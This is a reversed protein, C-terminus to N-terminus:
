PTGSAALRAQVARLVRAAEASDPQIRLAAELQTAADALRGEQALVIGLNLRANASQPNLAAARELHEAALDFRGQRAYVAGLNAQGMAYDPAQQVAQEFYGAAEDLRGQRFAVAGLNTLILPNDPQAALARRHLDAAEDLRGQQGYLSGLGTLATPNAPWIRLAEQYHPLAEDPKGMGVLVAALNTHAFYNDQTVALAHEFLTVSNRWSGLQVRTVQVGLVLYLAATAALLPRSWTWRQAVDRGAWAIAIYIGILPLYMYRDAMAQLGAQLIGSVPVLMGLYWLWGVLFYPRSNVTWVALLSLAILLVASAAAPAILAATADASILAPHPYAVALDVPWLMKRLYTAYAVLANALRPALPLTDLSAVAGRSRQAFVTVVSAAGCLALLPLKEAILRGAAARGAQWRGLPWFDLLLLVFPVTVLMPKSLLGLLLATCVAALRRASPQRAYWGYALLTLMFFLGSLTDKRETVWAVSEVHVPHLAFLAAVMAPPWMAGSLLRLALFLLVADLAHLGVNVLHFGGPAVGFLRADLMLSLWTLPHWNSSHFGVFAWHVGSWTLGGKVADNDFVYGPDDLSVFDFERVPAYTAVVTAGLALCVGITVLRSARESSM